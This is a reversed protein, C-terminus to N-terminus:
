SKVGKRKGACKPCDCPKGWDALKKGDLFAKNFSAKGIGKKMAILAAKESDNYYGCHRIDALVESRKV